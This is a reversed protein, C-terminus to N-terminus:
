YKYSIGLAISNGVQPNATIYSADLCFGKWKAGLGLALHSPFAAGATAYRYGARVFVMDRFGYRVGASLGLKGSFYYDADLACALTGPGAPLEYSAAARASSPLPSEGGKQSQIGKGLNAVGAAMNLGNQRYQLMVTIATSSLTYDAMLFQKVMRAAVGLSVYEGFAAGAGFALMQEKPAYSGYEGGFDIQSHAQNFLAASIVFGKGLRVAAGGGLNTSAANDSAPAWRGFVASADAYRVSFPLVAPNDFTALAASESLLTSGAGAMGTRAVGRPFSLFEFVENAPVSEQALAAQSLLLASALLICYRLKM